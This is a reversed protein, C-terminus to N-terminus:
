VRRALYRVTKGNALNAQGVGAFGLAAHFADSVPNPPDSNVECVVDTQGAARSVAFLREYLRRAVGQGRLTPSVIIRDVYVFRPYRERFWLYNPSAYAAAQDFTILLSKADTTALALFAMDLLCSLKDADLESTEIKHANNLALLSAVDRAGVDSLDILNAM